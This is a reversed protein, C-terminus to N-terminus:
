IIIVDEAKPTEVNGWTKIEGNGTIKYVRINDEDAIYDGIKSILLNYKSKSLNGEFVSRQVRLGYRELFKAFKYRRKNNYIDYCIVVFYCKEKIEDNTEFFYGGNNIFGM